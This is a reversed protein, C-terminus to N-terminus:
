NSDVIVQDAAVWGIQGSALEIKLWGDREFLLRGEVGARAPEPYRPPYDPGNGQLLKAQAERIVILPHALEDARRDAQRWALFFAFIALLLLMSTCFLMGRSRTMWWRTAALCGCSYLIAALAVLWSPPLLSSLWSPEAFMPARTESAIEFERVALLATAISSLMLAITLFWLWRSRTLLAFKRALWGCLQLVASLAFLGSPFSISLLSFSEREKDRAGVAADTPLYIKGRLTELAAHLDADDPRLRLGRHYALMAQPIDGALFYANGLNRYLAANRVNRSQLLEYYQVAQRFHPRAAAENAQEDLGAKVEAAARAALDADSLDADGGCVLAASVLLLPGM